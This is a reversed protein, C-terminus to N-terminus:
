DLRRKEVLWRLQLALSYLSAVGVTLYTLVLFLKEFPTIVAFLVVGLAVSRFYIVPAEFKTVTYIILTIFGLIAALYAYYDQLYWGTKLLILIIFGGDNFVHDLFKGFPESRKRQQQEEVRAILGDLGDGLLHIAAFLIFLLNNEFLYYLAFLGAIFSFVTMVHATIRVKLLARALGSFYKSRFEQSKKVIRSSFTPM